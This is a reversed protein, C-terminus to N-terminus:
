PSCRASPRAPLIRGRRDVARRIRLAPLLRELYTGVGRRDDRRLRRGADFHRGRNRHGAFRGCVIRTCDRGARGRAARVGALPSGLRDNPAFPTPGAHRTPHRGHAAEQRPAAGIIRRAGPGGHGRSAVDHWPPNSPSARSILPRRAGRLIRKRRNLLVHTWTRERSSGWGGADRSDFHVDSVISSLSDGTCAAQRAQEDHRANSFDSSKSSPRWRLLLIYVFRSGQLASLMQPPTRRRRGASGKVRLHAPGAERKLSKASSRPHRSTPNWPDGSTLVGLM